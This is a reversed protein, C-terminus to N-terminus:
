SSKVVGLLRVGTIGLYIRSHVVKVIPLNDLEIIVEHHQFRGLVDIAESLGMVEAEVVESLGWVERTAAGVCSGDENWLVLGLVWHGDGLLHADV